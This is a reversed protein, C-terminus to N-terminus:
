HPELGQKLLFMFGSQLSPQCTQNWYWSRAMMSLLADGKASPLKDEVKKMDDKHGQHLVMFKDHAQTKSLMNDGREHIKQLANSNDEYEEFREHGPLNTNFDGRIWHGPVAGESIQVVHMQLDSFLNDYKSNGKYLTDYVEQRVFTRRLIRKRGSRLEQCYAILRGTAVGLKRRAAALGFGRGALWGGM